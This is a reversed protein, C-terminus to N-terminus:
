NAAEVLLEADGAVIDVHTPPQLLTAPRESEVRRRNDPMVPAVRYAMVPLLLPPVPPSLGQQLFLPGLFVVAGPLQRPCASDVAAPERAREIEASSTDIVADPTRRWELPQVLGGRM